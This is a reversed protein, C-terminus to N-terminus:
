EGPPPQVADEPLDFEQVRGQSDVTKAKVGNKGYSYSAASGDDKVESIPRGQQDYVTETEAIAIGSGASILVFFLTNKIIQRM